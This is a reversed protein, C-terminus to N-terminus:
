PKILLILFVGVESDTIFILFITYQYNKKTDLTIKLKLLSDLFVKGAISIILIHSLTFSLFKHILSNSLFVNLIEYFM